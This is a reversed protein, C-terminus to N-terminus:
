SIEWVNEDSSERGPVTWSYFVILIQVNQSDFVQRFGQKESPFRWKGRQFLGNERQFCGTSPSASYFFLPPQM